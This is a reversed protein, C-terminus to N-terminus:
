RGHNNVVSTGQVIGPGYITSDHIVAQPNIVTTNIQTAIAALEQVAGFPLANLARRLEAEATADLAGEEAKKVANLAKRDSAFLGRLKGALGRVTDQVAKSATATVGGVAGAQLALLIQAILDPNDALSM